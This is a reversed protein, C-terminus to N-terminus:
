HDAWLVRRRQPEAFSYKSILVLSSHRAKIPKVPKVRLRDTAGPGLIQADSPAPHASTILTSLISFPTGSDSSYRVPGLPILARYPPNELHRPSSATNSGYAASAHCIYIGPRAPDLLRPNKVAVLTVINAPAGSSIPLLRTTELHYRRSSSTSRLHTQGPVAPLYYPRLSPVTFTPLRPLLPPRWPGSLHLYPLYLFFQLHM